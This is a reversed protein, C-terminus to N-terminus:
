VRTAGARGALLWPILGVLAAGMCALGFALSAAVAQAAGIGFAPWLAAAIGERVGWGNITLPVLMAMLTLPILALAEAPTLRIGIAAAAAWFGGLNVALIAITLGAQARWRGQDLWARALLRAPRPFLRALVAGLIVAGLTLAGLAVLAALGPGLWVALGGLAVVALAIQGALREILVSGAADGWSMQTGMQSGMQPGLHRSRAIRALDGLVGGPLFSNVAVSLGYERVAWGRPLAHGLAAATVRWRLASLAIQAALLVVALALWGPRMAGLAAGVDAPAVLWLVAVLIGLTLGLRLATRM